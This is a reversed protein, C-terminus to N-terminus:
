CHRMHLKFLRFEGNNNGASNGNGNNQGNSNGNGKLTNGTGASPNTISGLISDVLGRDKLNINNGSGAV